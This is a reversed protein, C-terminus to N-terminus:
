VYVLVWISYMHAVFPKISLCFPGFVIVLFKLVLYLILNVFVRATIKVLALLTASSLPANLILQDRCTCPSHQIWSLNVLICNKLGNRAVLIGLKVNDAHSKDSLLVEIAPLLRWNVCVQLTVKIPPINDCGWAIDKMRSCEIFTHCVM